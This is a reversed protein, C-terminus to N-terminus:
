LKCFGQRPCEWREGLAPSGHHQKSSSVLRRTLENNGARFIKIFYNNMSCLSLLIQVQRFGVETSSLRCCGYQRYEVKGPGPNAPVCVYQQFPELTLKTKFIELWLM